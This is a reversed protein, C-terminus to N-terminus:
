DDDQKELESNVMDYISIRSVDMGPMGVFTSGYNYSDGQKVIRVIEIFTHLVEKTWITLYAEYVTGITLALDCNFGVGTKSVDVIEIIAEHQEGPNNLSKIILKAELEMRKNRRREQM